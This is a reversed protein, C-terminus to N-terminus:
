WSNFSKKALNSNLYRYDATVEEGLWPPKEFAENEDDLEIEAVTLGDNDAHFKDVEWAKGEYEIVYRTKEIIPYPSMKILSIAEDMPIIYEFEHNVRESKKSKINITAQINEIRVRIAMNEDASLYAQKIYVSKSNQKYNESIVLFKREIELPM